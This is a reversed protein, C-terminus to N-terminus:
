ALGSAFIAATHPYVRVAGAFQSSFSAPVIEVDM